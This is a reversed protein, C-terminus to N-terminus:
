KPVYQNLFIDDDDYNLIQKIRMAILLSPNKNGLEINTYSTRAIGIMKALSAQTLELEERRKKLKVRLKQWEKRGM